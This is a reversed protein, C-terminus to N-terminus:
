RLEIWTSEPEHVFPVSVHLLAPVIGPVYLIVRTTQSACSFQAESVMHTDSKAGEPVARGLITGFVDDTGEGENKMGPQVNREPKTAKTTNPIIFWFFLFFLYM